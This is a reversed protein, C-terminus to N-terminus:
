GKPVLRTVVEVRAECGVNLLIQRCKRHRYAEQCLGWGLECKAGPDLVVRLAAQGNRLLLGGEKKEVRVDPHLNFVFRLAVRRKSTVADRIIVGGGKGVEVARRWEVGEWGEASSRLVASVSSGRQDVRWPRCRPSAWSKWDYTGAVVGDGGGDVLLGSHAAGGKYWKAFLADEYNPCGSDVLFPKGDRWLIVANKGAHYHSFRGTFPSADLVLFSSKDCHFAMGANKFFATKGPSRAAKPLTELFPALNVPYGDNIVPSLGDPQRMARIFATARALSAEAGARLRFGHLRSLLIADRMHWTEFCHYSPSNEALSGDPTFDHRIHFDCLRRGEDLFERWRGFGRFYAGAYLLAVGRISQHNNGKQPELFRQEGILILEAHQYLSHNIESAAERTLARAGRLFRLAYLLHLVRSAPQFDFWIYRVDTEDAMNEEYTRRNYGNDRIGYVYRIHEGIAKEGTPPPFARIFRLVCDVVKRAVREDRGLWYTRALSAIFYFRTLWCSKEVSRWRELAAFDLAPLAGWDKLLAGSMAKRAIKADEPEGAIGRFSLAGGGDLPYLDFFNHKRLLRDSIPLQFPRKRTFRASPADEPWLPTQTRTTV